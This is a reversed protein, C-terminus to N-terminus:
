SRFSGLASAVDEKTVGAKRMVYKSVLLLDQETVAAVAKVWMTYRIRARNVDFIIGAVSLEDIWDDSELKPVGEDPASYLETGLAVCADLLALGRDSASQNLAELYAPDQPNAISREKEKDYVTPVEPLKFNEIIQLIIRPAIPRVHLIVGTSLTVYETTEETATIEEIPQDAKELGDGLTTLYDQKDNM